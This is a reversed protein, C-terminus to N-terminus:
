KVGDIKIDKLIEDIKKGITFSTDLKFFLNPIKRLSNDYTTLEKKIYPSIQNLKDLSKNENSLFTVFVVCNSLDNSLKISTVTPYSIDSNTIHESIINSIILLLKQEKRKHNISM